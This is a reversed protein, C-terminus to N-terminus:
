CEDPGKALGGAALESPHVVRCEPYYKSLGDALQLLCSTASASVVRAQTSAIASVKRRLLEDSLAPELFAFAGAGGCCDEAAPLEVFERCAAKVLERPQRTLGQGHRAKCSDHCTGRGELGEQPIHCPQAVANPVPLLEVIDRVRASFGEARLRWEPDKLFLQPYGKMHAVCSSCDGVLVAAPDAQELAKEAQEIVRQALRRAQGVEGYNYALLGCCANDLFATRGLGQLVAVTAEGVRPIVYNPGCPAFYLYRAGAFNRLEARKRLKPALLEWPAEHVHAEAVALGQLGFLRPLGLGCALRALGVRKTLYALPLLLELMRPHELQLWTIVRALLPARGERLLRRAELVLDPVRVRAPCVSTCGGCLLCTSLLREVTAPEKLKGELLLRLAQNRGRPSLGEEGTAVYTPCAQECYGCRSCQAVADYTSREGLETALRLLMGKASM